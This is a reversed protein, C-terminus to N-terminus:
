QTQLTTDKSTHPEDCRTQANEKQLFQRLIMSAKSMPALTVEAALEMALQRRNIKRKAKDLPLVGCKPMTVGDPAHENLLVTLINLSTRHKNTVKSGFKRALDATSIMYTGKVHTLDGLSTIGLQMLSRYVTAPIAERLGLAVPDYTIDRMMKVLPSVETTFKSGHMTLQVGIEHAMALQKCLRFYRAESPVENPQLGQLASLQHRLLSRTVLGLTGEDNLSKIFAALNLQHYQVRLSPIGLGGDLKALHVM